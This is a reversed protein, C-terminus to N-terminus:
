HSAVGYSSMQRATFEGLCRAADKGCPVTIEFAEAGAEPRPDHLLPTSQERDPPRQVLRHPSGGQESTTRWPRPVRLPQLQSGDSSARQCNADAPKGPAPQAAIALPATLYEDVRVRAERPPARVAAVIAPEVAFKHCPEESALVCALGYRLWVPRVSVECCASTPLAERAEVDSSTPTRVAM